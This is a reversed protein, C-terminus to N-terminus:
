TTERRHAARGSRTSTRRRDRRARRRRLRRRGRRIAASGGAILGEYRAPLSGRSLRPTAPRRQYYPPSCAPPRCWRRRLVGGMPTGGMSAVARLAETMPTSPIGTRTSTSTAKPRGPSVMTPSAPLATSSARSRTRAASRLEPKSTGDRRIVTFRAGASRGFSPVPWSRAIAIAIRAADSWSSAAGSPVCRGSRLARARHSAAGRGPHWPARRPPSLRPRRRPPGASPWRRRLPGRHAADDDTRRGAQPLHRPVKGAQLRQSGRRGRGGAIERDQGVPM